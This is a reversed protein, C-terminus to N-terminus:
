LCTSLFEQLPKKLSPDRLAIQINAKLWRLPDGATVWKEEKTPPALVVDTQALTNVADAFWLEGGRSTQQKELVSFIKPSVVFRGVQAINSPAQDRPLKELIRIARHPYSQDTQYEISAYREIESWPVEQAGIIVAPQYQNYLKIIRSFYSGPTKELMLDDGFAYAFPDNKVFPKAALVPSANGYPLKPDQPIFHIKKLKKWIRELSDLLHVKNTSQLFKELDKDRSFYNEFDTVGPRHIIAIETIGANIMEEVLYQINPKALIPILEKPYAKVVPLFRTGRGAAAIVGKKIM